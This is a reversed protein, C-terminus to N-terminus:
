KLNRWIIKIWEKLSHKYNYLYKKYFFLKSLNYMIKYFRNYPLYVLCNLIIWTLKPHLVAVTGLMSINKQINKNRNTYYGGLISKDNYSEGIKNVDGDFYRKKICFDGLETKPYPQYIPFDVYDFNNNYCWKVANIDNEICSEPLGIMINSIVKIGYKKCLRQGRLIQSRAMNRKLLGKRLYDDVAEISIQLCVCGADKLLKIMEETILDYRLLAWFPVGVEEKYRRCFEKFWDDVKYTINDDFIKISKFDYKKKAQKMEKIVYDVSHRRVYKQKPYMKKLSHNFCYPCDFPCGRSLIFSHNINKFLDRDPFPLSDLNEIIKKSKIIRKKPLKGKKLNKIFKIFEIEGEGQILYDFKGENLVKNYFTAHPGGVLTPIYGGGTRPHYEEYYKKNFEVYHKHNGTHLSYCILDPIITNIKDFVNEKSIIGLYTKCGEQKAISSLQMIGLPPYNEVNNVIFLIKM